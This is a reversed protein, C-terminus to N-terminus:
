IFSHHFSLLRSLSMKIEKNRMSYIVPNIMPPLMSYLITFMLDLNSPADPTSRLYAFAGTIIFTSFVILHPLCTSFAKQRGQGSPIRLVSSFIHVYTIIIFVFCGSALVTGFVLVGMEPLNLDFCSLKLIQPLECFFQNIINSCLPTAFTVATNLLSHLFGAIWVSAIMQSCAQKNMVMEYRLPNCIAVYRDYAMVTLLYIDSALLFLLTFVQAVCGSYTIYRTNLLSNAMSKPMIVSVTGLDQVALNMLFVYMPTHLHHDCAVASIVLLNGTVAALYLVLFVFVHLMQLERVEAFELLLFGSLSSQNAM